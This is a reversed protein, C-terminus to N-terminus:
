RIITYGSIPAGGSDAAIDLVTYDQTRYGTVRPAAPLAPEVPDFAAYMRPGGTQRAIVAVRTFHGQHTASCGGMCGDAYSVLVRGQDDITADIFDLLNRNAGGSAIGGPGQSLDDGVQEVFWHAGYDFTSAIYFHWVGPFDMGSDDASDVPFTDGLFAVAARGADGAVMAPFEANHIGAIAGVDLDNIWTDGHDKSVAVRLHDDLPAYAYYVTDDKGIAVSPDSKTSLDSPAMSVLKVKWTLGADESVILGPVGPGLVSETGLGCGKNPVYATGTPGVKVHGHLGVCDTATYIPVFPNFTVGGDDSRSCFSAAVGQSCYYVANPYLPHIVPITTTAPYPGAGLSQHDVGSSPFGNGGPLWTEGDDDSYESLSQTGALQLSFVRGTTQDVYLIPDLTAIDSFNGHKSAWTDRAPVTSDDFKVRLTDLTNIYFVSGTKPNFGISPEAAALGLGPSKDPRYTAFRPGNGHAAYPLEPHRPEGAIHVLAISVTENSSTVASPVSEVTLTRQGPFPLLYIEQTDDAIDNGYAFYNQGTQATGADTVVYHLLSDGPVDRKFRIRVYTDPHKDAYDAPLDFTLAYQDCPNNGGSCRILAPEGITATLNDDSFPGAAYTLPYDETNAETLTGSAPTAAHAASAACLIAASFFHRM